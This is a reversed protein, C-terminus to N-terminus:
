RQSLASAVADCFATTSASGGQDPTLSKGESFVDVLASELRTAESTFGLYELMMAASLITAAPNIVNRGAIDPATGHASEFYAYDDGYCGSAALGLGGILGAAADSLIDGYLNPLVIVDFEAPNAVLKHALDDVILSNCDIDPYDAAVRETVERFFGDSQPLMNYKSGCTVRGPCGRERRSRALEFSFRAVRETGAETILKLAYRGPGFASLPKRATRSQLDLAALEEVEGELGLYMDELNERVIVLDVDEPRALPSRYGKRWRAPRVNAYTGRGWRLYMLAPASPGSTSGFLTADSADIAERAVDPFLSGCESQGREGVPPHVWDIGDVLGELLAVCPQMAEPAADEGEIVVVRKRQTM